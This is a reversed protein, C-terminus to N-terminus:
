EKGFYFNLGAGILWTSKSYTETTPVPVLGGMMHDFSKTGDAYVTMQGGINLDIKPTIMYGFGAGFSNTNTSYTQDNQYNSNVGTSTAVWGASVRLKENIGYEAGLGYELFNRDIMKINLEKSGDYDVNKDFYVNFSTTLYLNKLAKYGAGFSFMAPMDAISETGEEFIGGGLGNNLSTKLTLKTQFEYKLAIDLNEIPTVNVSIIPTFGTGTEQADVSINQTAAASGAMVAAKAAFGASAANLTAAATGINMGTTNVGAATLIAIANDRISAPMSTLPTNAPTGGSIASSIGTALATANTSLGTLFTNGATFFEPASVLGGTYAAGFAPYNPGISINNIHGKYTNKATVMRVGAAISIMDNVKYGVNAQYGFYISKGEFFIDASYGSTPIGSATLALPLDAIDMEFSPLGKDYKAGGGGGVPNFGASFSLKGTNYAVYIGPFLPASVKGIYEKPSESLYPYTSTVTKTQSITQNNISAFFGQGLRTLGAPNYYVADISTSANRNQLRTFMASQNTNTVLGGAILSGTILMAAFLTLLKRM